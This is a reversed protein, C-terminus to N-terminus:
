PEASAPYWSPPRKERFAAVGENVTASAMREVTRQEWALETADSVGARALENIITKTESLAGPEGHLLGDILPAATETLDGSRALAHVLGFRLADEAGFRDGTLAYRCLQRARMAPLLYPLLAAPPIGIRVEPIAFFADTQAIALDCCAVIAVAGGVCAGNVMALTPVRLAKLRRLVDPISPAATAAPASASASKPLTRLDAGASFHKGNGRLCLVRIGKDGDCRDFVAVLDRLLDGNLANFAAPRDFTATAVGRGDIALSVAVASM